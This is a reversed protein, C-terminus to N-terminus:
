LEFIVVQAYINPGFKASLAGAGGLGNDARTEETRYELKLKKTTNFPVEVVCVGVSSGDSNADASRSYITTGNWVETVPSDPNILRSQALETRYFTSNFNVQYRGPKLIEITNASLTIFGPSQNSIVNLTRATWVDKTATGGAVGLATQHAVIAHNKRRVEWVVRTAVRDDDEPDLEVKSVIDNGFAAPLSISSGNKCGTIANISLTESPNSSCSKFENFLPGKKICGDENFLAVRNAPLSSNIVEAEPTCICRGNQSTFIKKLKRFCSSWISSSPNDPMTGAFLHGEENESLDKTSTFCIDESEQLINLVSVVGSQELTNIIISALGSDCGTPPIPFFISGKKITEGAEPNGIIGNDGSQDCGNLIKIKSNLVQTIKFAALMNGSMPIGIFMGEKWNAGKALKIYTSSGVKPVIFDELIEDYFKRCVGSQPPGSLPIGMASFNKRVLDNQDGQNSTGCGCNSDSM